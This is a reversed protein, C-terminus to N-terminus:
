SKSFQKLGMKKNQSIMIPIEESRLPAHRFLEFGSSKKDSHDNRGRMLNGSRIDLICYDRSVTCISPNHFFIIAKLYILIIRFSTHNSTLLARTCQIYSIAGNDNLGHFSAVEHFRASIWFLLFLLRCWLIM